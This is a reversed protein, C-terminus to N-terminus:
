GIRFAPAVGGDNTSGGEKSYWDGSSGVGLFDYKDGSTATRLWWRAATGNYNKIAGSRNSLAVGKNSYYDLQRTMSSATDSCNETACDSWVEKPSFLYINDTSTFNSRDLLGYGSVVITDVIVNQLDSPLKAKFSGNLYTRMTTAPWGSSNTMSSIMARQEVIDVFEVVFGCATKSDLACDYNSNNAIRVTYNTGGISVKKTDGVKYKYGM